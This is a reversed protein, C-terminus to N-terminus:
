NPNLCILAVVSLIKGTCNISFLGFMKKKKKKEKKEASIVFIHLHKESSNKVKRLMLIWNYQNQFYGQDKVRCFGGATYKKTCM